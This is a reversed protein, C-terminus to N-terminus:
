SLFYLLYLVYLFYFYLLFAQAAKDNTAGETIECAVRTARSAATGRDTRVRRGSGTFFNIHRYSDPTYVGVM